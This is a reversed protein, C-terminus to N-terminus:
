PKQGRKERIREVMRRVYTPTEFQSYDTRLPQPGRLRDSALIFERRREKM